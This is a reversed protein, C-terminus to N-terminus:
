QIGSHIQNHVCSINNIHVIISHPNPNFPYMCLVATAVQNYGFHKSMYRTVSIVTWEYSTIPKLIHHVMIEPHFRTM